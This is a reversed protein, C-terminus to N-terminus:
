YKKGRIRFTYVGSNTLQALNRDYNMSVSAFSLLNNYARIQTRFQRGTATTDLLLTMLFDPPVPIPSLEALRGNNCCNSSSRSCEEPWLFAYCNLCQIRSSLKHPTIEELSDLRRGVFQIDSLSSTRHIRCLGEIDCRRLCLDGANHHRSNYRFRYGCQM